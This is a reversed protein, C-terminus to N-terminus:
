EYKWAAYKVPELELVATDGKKADGLLAEAMPGELTGLYKLLCERTLRESLEQDVRVRARARGRVGYTGEPGSTDITFYVREDDRLRQTKRSGTEVTIWLKEKEFIFWVPAVAPWGDDDSFGLRLLLPEALIECVQERTLLKTMGDAKVIKM